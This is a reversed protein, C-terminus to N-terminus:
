RQYGTDNKSLRLTPHVRGSEKIIGKQRLLPCKPVITTQAGIVIRTTIDIDNWHPLIKRGSTRSNDHGHDIVPHLQIVRIQSCDRDGTPGISAPAKNAAAGAIRNIRVIVARMHGTGNRSYVIISNADTANGTTQIPFASDPYHRTREEMFIGPIRLFSNMPIRIISDNPRRIVTCHDTVVAPTFLKFRLSFSQSAFNYNEELSYVCVDVLPYVMFVGLFLIAPLLYLWAKLNNKKM